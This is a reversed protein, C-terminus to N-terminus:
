DEQFPTLSLVKVGIGKLNSAAEAKFNRLDLSNGKVIILIERHLSDGSNFIVNGTDLVDLRNLGNLKLLIQKLDEGSDNVASFSTAESGFDVIIDGDIESREVTILISLVPHIHVSGGQVHDDNVFLEDRTESNYEILWLGNRTSTSINQLPLASLYDELDNASTDISIENTISEGQRIRFSGQATNSTPVVAFLNRNPKQKEEPDKQSYAFLPLSSWQSSQNANNTSKIRAVYPSLSFPLLVDIEQPIAVGKVIEEVVINVNDGILKHEDHLHFLSVDGSKSTFTIKYSILTETHEKSVDVSGVNGLRQLKERVDEDNDNMPNIRISKAFDEFSLSFYGEVKNVGTWSIEVKQVERVLTEGVSEVMFLNDFVTSTGRQM